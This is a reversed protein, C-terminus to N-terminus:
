QEDIGVGHAKLRVWGILTGFPLFMTTFIYLLGFMTLLSERIFSASYNGTIIMLAVVMGLGYFVAYFLRGAGIEAHKIELLGVEILKRTIKYDKESVVAFVIGALGSIIVNDIVFLYLGSTIAVFNVVARIKLVRDSIVYKHAMMSYYWGAAVFVYLAMSVSKELSVGSFYSIMFLPISASLESLFNQWSYTIKEPTKNKSYFVSALFMMSSGVAFLAGLVKVLSVFSTGPKAFVLYMLGFLLVSFGFSGLFFVLYRLGKSKLLGSKRWKDPEKRLVHALTYLLALVVGFLFSEEWPLSLFYHFLVALFVAGLLFTLLLRPDKWGM